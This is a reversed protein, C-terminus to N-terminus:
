KDVKNGIPIMDKLNKIEESLLNKFHEVAHWHPSTVPSRIKNIIKEVQALTQNRVNNCWKQHLKAFAMNGESDDAVRYGMWEFFDWAIKNATKNNISDKNM